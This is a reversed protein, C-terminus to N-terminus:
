APLAAKSRRARRVIQASGLALAAALAGVAGPPAIPVQSGAPDCTCRTPQTPPPKTCIRVPGPSCESSVLHSACAVDSDLGCVATSGQAACDCSPFPDASYAVCAYSALSGCSVGVPKSACLGSAESCTSPAAHIARGAGMLALVTMLVLVFRMEFRRQ